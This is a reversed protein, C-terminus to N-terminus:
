GGSLFTEAAKVVAGTEGQRIAEAPARGGLTTPERGLLWARAVEAGEVAEVAALAAFASRLRREVDTSPERGEVLSGLDAPEPLALTFCTLKEGLLARLQGALESTPADAARSAAEGLATPIEDM